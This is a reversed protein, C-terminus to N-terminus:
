RERTRFRGSAAMCRLVGDFLYRGEELDFWAVVGAADSEEITITGTFPAPVFDAESVDFEVGTAACPGSYGELFVASDRVARIPYVGAPPPNSVRLLVFTL